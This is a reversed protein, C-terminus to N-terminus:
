WNHFAGGPLWEDIGLPDYATTTSESRGGRRPRRQTHIKPGRGEWEYGGQKQAAPPPNNPDKKVGDPMQNCESRLKCETSATSATCFNRRNPIKGWMYETGTEGATPVGDTGEKDCGFIM